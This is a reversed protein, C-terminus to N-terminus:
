KDGILSRLELDSRNVAQGVRERGSVINEVMKKFILDTEESEPDLFGQTILASRYFLDENALGLPRSLLDRRVPPLGTLASLTKINDERIMASAASIAVSMNKSRKLVAFATLDGYVKKTSSESPQPFLAVDFNLNPNKTKILELESAFGFYLALDGSIFAEQSNPIARNWSYSTKTPNSFETYFRLASEAPVTVRDLNSALIVRPKDSEDDRLIIPNGNQMILSLIIEKANNINQYEGMAVASKIINLAEDKETLREAIGFFESWFEPPSSLGASQLIDRNWYMVLPDVTLPLGLVGEKSLFIESGEIFADKFNRPSIIDYSIPLIKDEFQLLDRSSLIVIDPERGSAIAEVVERSFDEGDIQEYKVNFAQSTNIRFDNLFDNFVVKNERGWVTIEIDKIQTGGRFTAFSFVGIAAFVIFMILMGVRFRNM